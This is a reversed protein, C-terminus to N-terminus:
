MGDCLLRSWGFGAHFALSVKPGWVLDHGGLAWERALHGSLDVFVELACSLCQGPTRCSWGRAKCRGAQWGWTPLPGLSSEQSPPGTLRM